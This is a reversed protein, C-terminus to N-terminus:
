PLTLWKTHQWQWKKRDMARQCCKKKSEANLRMKWQQDLKFCFAFFEIFTFFNHKIHQADRKQLQVHRVILHFCIKYTKVLNESYEASIFAM